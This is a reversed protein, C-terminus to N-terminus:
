VTVYAVIFLRLTIYHLDLELVFRKSSRACFLRVSPRITAKSLAGVNIDPAPCLLHSM